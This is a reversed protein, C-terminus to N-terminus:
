DSHGRIRASLALLAALLLHFQDIGLQALSIATSFLFLEDLLDFSDLFLAAELGFHAM